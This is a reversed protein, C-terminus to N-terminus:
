CKILSGVLWARFPAGMEEAGTYTVRLLISTAPTITWNKFMVYRDIEPTAFIDGTLDGSQRFQSYNGFRLENIAWDAAGRPTDAASILLYRPDYLRTALAIVQVEQAPRIQVGATSLELAECGLARLWELDITDLWLADLSATWEKRPGAPDFHLFMARAPEGWESLQQKYTQRAALDGQATMKILRQEADNRAQYMYSGDGELDSMITTTKEAATMHTIDSM